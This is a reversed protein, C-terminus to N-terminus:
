IDPHWKTGTQEAALYYYASGDAQCREQKQSRACWGIGRDMLSEPLSNRRYVNHVVAREMGPECDPAGVNWSAM